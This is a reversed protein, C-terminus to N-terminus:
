RELTLSSSPTMVLKAFMNTTSDKSAREKHLFESDYRLLFERNERLKMNYDNHLKKFESFDLQKIDLFKPNFIEKYDKSNWINVYKKLRMYAFFCKDTQDLIPSLAKQMEGIKKRYMPFSRSCSARFEHMRVKDELIKLFDYYTNDFVVLKNYYSLPFNSNLFRKSELELYSDIRSGFRQKVFQVLSLLPRGKRQANRVNEVAEKFETDKEYNDISRQSYSKVLKDADFWKPIEVSGFIAENEFTVLDAYSRSPKLSRFTRTIRRLKLGFRKVTEVVEIPKVDMLGYRLASGSYGITPAGSTTLAM